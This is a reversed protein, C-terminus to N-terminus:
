NRYLRKLSGWTNPETPTNGHPYFVLDGDRTLYGTFPTIVFPSEDPPAQPNFEIPTTSVLYGPLDWCIGGQIYYQDLLQGPETLWVQMDVVVWVYQTTGTPDGISPLPQTGEPPLYMDYWEWLDQLVWQAGDYAPAVAKFWNINGCTCAPGWQFRVTYDNAWTPICGTITQCYQMLGDYLPPDILQCDITGWVTVTNYPPLSDPCWYNPIQLYDHFQWTAAPVREAIPVLLIPVLLLSLIMPRM